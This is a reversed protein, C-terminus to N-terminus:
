LASNRTATPDVRLLDQPERPAPSKGKKDSSLSGITVKGLPQFLVMPWHGHNLDLMKYAVRSVIKDSSFDTPYASVAQSLYSPDCDPFMARLQLLAVAQLASAPPAM